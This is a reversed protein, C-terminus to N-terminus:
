KGRMLETAAIIGAAAGASGSSVQSKAFMEQQHVLNAREKDSLVSVYDEQDRPDELDNLDAVPPLGQQKRRRRVRERLTWIVSIGKCPILMTVPDIREPPVICERYTDKVRWPILGVGTITFLGNVIQSSIEVWRDQWWKNPTPVWGALFFIIAAGWFVVLIGYIATIVGMPTKLFVWLGQLAKKAKDRKSERLVQRVHQDLSHSTDRRDLGPKLSESSPATPPHPPYDNSTRSLVPHHSSFTPFEPRPPQVSSTPLPPRYLGAVTSARQRRSAAAEADSQAPMESAPIM